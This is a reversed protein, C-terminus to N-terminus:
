AHNLNCCCGQAVTFSSVDLKRKVSSTAFQPMNPRVPTQSTQSPQSHSLSLNSLPTHRGAMESLKKAFVPANQTPPKIGSGASSYQRNPTKLFVPKKASSQNHPMPALHNTTPTYQTPPICDVDMQSSDHMPAGSQSCGITSVVSSIPKVAQFTLVTKPKVESYPRFAVVGNQQKHIKPRFVPVVRKTPQTQPQTSSMSMDSARKNLGTQGSLSVLMGSSSGSYGTQDTTLSSLQSLGTTCRTPQQTQSIRQRCAQQLYTPTRDSLNM